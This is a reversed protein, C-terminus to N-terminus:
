KNRRRGAGRDGTSLRRGRRRSKEERGSEEAAWHEKGLIGEGWGEGKEGREKERTREKEDNREKWKEVQQKRM